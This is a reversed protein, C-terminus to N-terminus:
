LILIPREPIAELIQLLHEATAAATRVPSRAVIDQGTRLDLTGYFCVKERGRDARVMPTQGRPAWVSMTTAQLVMSMEHETLLM